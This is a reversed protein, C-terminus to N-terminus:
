HSFMMKNIYTYIISLIKIFNYKRKKKNNNKFIIGMSGLQVTYKMRKKMKFMIATRVKPTMIIQKSHLGEMALANGM